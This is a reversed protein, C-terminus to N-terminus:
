ILVPNTNAATGQYRANGFALIPLFIFGLIAVGLGFGAGKGFSKALGISIIIWAVLNVLPIILLLVWWGSKGATKCLIYANYIPVIAAWGPEGAKTFVKWLAVIGIIFLLLSIVNGVPNSQPPPNYVNDGAQALLPHLSALLHAM